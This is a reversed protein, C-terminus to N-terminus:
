IEDPLAGHVDCEETFTWDYEYDGKSPEGTLRAVSYKRQHERWREPTTLRQSRCVIDISAAKVGELSTINDRVFKRITDWDKVIASIRIDDYGFSYASYGFYTDIPRKMGLLKEYVEKYEQARVQVRIVFRHLNEPVDRPVPFFAPKMLTITRTYAIEECKNVEDALFEAMSDVDSTEFLVSVYNRNELHSAWLPLIDKSQYEKFERQIFDWVKKLEYKPHLRVMLMM